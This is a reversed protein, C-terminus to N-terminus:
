RQLRDNPITKEIRQTPPQLDVTALLVVGAVVILAALMLGIRVLWSM